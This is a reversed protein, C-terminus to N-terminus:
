RATRERNGGVAHKHKENMFKEQKWNREGVRLSGLGDETGDEVRGLRLQNVQFVVLSSGM